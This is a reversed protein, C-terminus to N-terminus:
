PFLGSFPDPDTEPAFTRGDIAVPESTDDTRNEILDIVFASFTQGGDAGGDTGGDMGGDAGMGGDDDVGGDRDVGADRVGTDAPNTVGADRQMGDDDDDDGSCGALAMAGVMGVLWFLRLVKM